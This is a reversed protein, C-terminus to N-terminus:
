GLDLLPIETQASLVVGPRDVHVQELEDLVADVELMKRGDM